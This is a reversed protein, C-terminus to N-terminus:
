KKDRWREQEVRDTQVWAIVGRNLLHQYPPPLLNPPNQILRVTLRHHPPLALVQLANQLRQQMLQRNFRESGFQDSLVWLEVAEGMAVRQRIQQVAGSDLLSFKPSNYDCLGLIMPIRGTTDAWIQYRHTDIRYDPYLLIHQERRAVRGLSDQVWVAVEIPKAAQGIVVRRAVTDDQWPIMKDGIRLTRELQQVPTWAHIRSLVRIAVSRPRVFFKSQEFRLLALHGNRLVRVARQEKLLEPYRPMQHFHQIQLKVYSRLQLSDLIHEVLRRRTEIVEVPEDASGSVVIKWAASQQRIQPVLADFFQALDAIVGNPLMRASDKAFFVVTPLTIDWQLWDGEVPIGVTTHEEVIRLSDLWLETEVAPAPPPPPPPVSPRFPPPSPFPITAGISLSWLRWRQQPVLSTLQVMLRTEPHVRWRGLSLPRLRVGAVLGFHWRALTSSISGSFENRQRLGNEYRYAAPAELQEVQEGRAYVLAAVRVGGYLTRVFQWPSPVRHRFESFVQAFQIQLRHYSYVPTAVQQQVAYGLFEKEQFRGMWWETGVAIEPLWRVDATISVPPLKRGIFFGAGWGLTTTYPVCCNPIAPLQDFRADFLAPAGYIGGFWLSRTETSPVIAEVSQGWSGSFSAVFGVLVIVIMLSWFEAKFLALWSRLVFPERNYRM